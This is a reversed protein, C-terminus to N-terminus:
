ILDSGGNERYIFLGSLAALVVRREHYVLKPIARSLLGYPVLLFFFPLLLIEDKAPLNQL